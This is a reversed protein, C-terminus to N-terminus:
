EQHEGRRHKSGQHAARTGAATQRRSQRVRPPPSAETVATTGGRRKTNIVRHQRGRSNPGGRQM